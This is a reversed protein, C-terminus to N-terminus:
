PLWGAMTGHEQIIALDYKIGDDTATMGRFRQSYDKSLQEAEDALKDSWEASTFVGKEILLGVLTSVEARLLITIERHDRVAQAEPDAKMRSGLQWGTFVARWKALRNLVRSLREAIAQEDPTTPETM